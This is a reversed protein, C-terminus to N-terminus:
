AFLFVWNRVSVLTPLKLLLGGSFVVRYQICFHVHVCVVHQHRALSLGYMDHRIPTGRWVCVGIDGDGAIVVWSISNVYRWSLSRSWGRVCLCVLYSGRILAICFFPHFVLGRVVMVVPTLPAMCSCEMLFSMLRLIGFDVM